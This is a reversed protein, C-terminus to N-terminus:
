VESSREVQINPVRFFNELILSAVGFAVAYQHHEDSIISLANNTLPIVGMEIENRIAEIIVDELESVVGTIVLTDPNLLAVAPAITQGVLRGIRAFILRAIKDGKKAADLLFEMDMSEFSTIHERLIESEHFRSRFASLLDGLNPLHPYLEGACFSAGRYLEGNIIIGIGLGSVNKDIELLVSLYNKMSKSARKWKWAIAAANANNEILVPFPLRGLKEILPLNMEPLVSSMAVIGNETDVIGAFAIGLGLVKNQEIENEAIIDNVVNIIHGTLVDATRATELKIIKKAVIVGSFDLVVLTMEGVEIDLGVTYAAGKNLTWVFPRKGGKQTSQGKGHLSILSRASLTKLINFITSPRMGSIRVLESSSIIGYEQILRLVLQENVDKVVSSHFSLLRKENLSNNIM